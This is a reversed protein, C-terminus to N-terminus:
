RFIQRLDRVLQEFWQQSTYEETFHAIIQLKKPFNTCIWEQVNEKNQAAESAINQPLVAVLVDFLEQLTRIKVNATGKADGTGKWILADMM